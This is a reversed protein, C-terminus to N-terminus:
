SEKIKLYCDKMTRQKKMKQKDNMIKLSLEIKCVQYLYVMKLLKILMGCINGLSKCKDILLTNHSWSFQASVTQVIELSPVFESFKRM